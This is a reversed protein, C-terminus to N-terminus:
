RRHGGGSHHGGHYGGGHNYHGSHYYRGHGSHYYGHGYFERYGPYFGHYFVGERYWGEPGIWVGFHSDWYVVGTDTYYYQTDCIDRNGYDDSVEVCGYAVSSDAPPPPDDACGIMSVAIVGLLMMLKNKM